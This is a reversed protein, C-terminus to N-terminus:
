QTEEHSISLVDRYAKIGGARQADVTPDAGANEILRETEYEVRDLLQSFVQQTVPHRKWDIFDNQTV